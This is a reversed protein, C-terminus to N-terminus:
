QLIISAWSLSMTGDSRINSNRQFTMDPCVSPDSRQEEKGLEMVSTPHGCM